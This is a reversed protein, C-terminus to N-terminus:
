RIEEAKVEITSESPKKDIQNEKIKNELNAGGNIYTDSLGLSITGCNNCANVKSKFTNLGVFVLLLLLLPILFLLLIINGLFSLFFNIGFIPVIILIIFTYILLNKNAKLFYNM